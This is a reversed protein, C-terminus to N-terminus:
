GSKEGDRNLLRGLVTEVKRPKMAGYYIGNVVMVPALACAGLCAVSEFTFNMDHTTEGEKVGLVEGIRNLVAKGGRVHCATGRCVRITNRGRPTLYFQAYFTVVGYTHSLPIGLRQSIRELVAAPLYGYIKQAEQLAPILSATERPYKDLAIEIPELAIQGANQRIADCKCLTSENKNDAAPYRNM